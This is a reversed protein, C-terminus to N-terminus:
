FIFKLSRYKLLYKVSLYSTYLLAALYHMRTRKKSIIMIASRMDKFRFVKKDLPEEDHISLSHNLNYDLVFFYENKRAYELIFDSDIGYLKLREDFVPFNKLIYDLKIIMGSAVAVKNSVNVLGTKLTKWYKGKVIQYNGPSFIKGNKEIFPVFLSIEQNQNIAERALLFFSENFSTDQDLVLLFSGHSLKSVKNYILALSVNEPTHIYTVSPIQSRLKDVDQQPLSEPSNDWVFLEFVHSGAKLLSQISLSREPNCKYLVVAVSFEIPIM